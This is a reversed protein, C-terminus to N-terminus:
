NGDPLIFSMEKLLDVRRCRVRYQDDSENPRRQLLRQEGLSQAELKSAPIGRNILEKVVFQARRLGLTKNYADSAVDDTHGLLILRRINEDYLKLNEALLDLAAQWTQSTPTGNSDLLYPYPNSYEDTPFNIRLSLDGPLSFDRLVITSNNDESIHMRESDYFLHKGQASIEVDREVPVQLSFRGSSDTQSRDLVAQNPVERVTINAGIVPKHTTSETVRGRVTVRKEPTKRSAQRSQKETSQKPTEARAIGGNVPKVTHLVYLDFGGTEEAKIDNSAPRNSSFYLLTDFQAPSCPFLEDAKTNIPTGANRVASFAIQGSPAKKYFDAPIDAIFVDYGGVTEHGASSFLLRTGDNAVFPTLEDCSSNIDPGCNVPNTWSNSSRVTYWIDTGGYGGPRDSAFFLVDGQPSLAPQSDWYMPLSIPANIKQLGKITTGAVSCQYLDADGAQAGIAVGALVTTGARKSLAGMTVLGEGVVPAAPKLSTVSVVSAGYLTQVNAEGATMLLGSDAFALGLEDDPSNIGSVFDVRHEFGPTGYSPIGAYDNGVWTGPRCNQEPVPCDPLTTTAQQFLCSSLLLAPVLFLPMHVAITRFLGQQRPSINQLVRMNM